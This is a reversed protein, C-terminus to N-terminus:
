YWTLRRGAGGAEPRHSPPGSACGPTFTGAPSRSSPCGRTNSASRAPAAPKRGRRCWGVLTPDFTGDPQLRKLPTHVLRYKGRERGMICFQDHYERPGAPTDLNAYAAGFFHGMEHTEHALLAPDLSQAGVPM